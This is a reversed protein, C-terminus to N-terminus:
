HVGVEVGFEESYQGNVRVRSRVNTHIVRIAWEEVGFNKLAWWLGKRPVHDFDMELDVLALYLPKNAAIHKEQLQCIIFIADSTDRGPVFGFQLSDIDM